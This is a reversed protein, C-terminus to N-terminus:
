YYNESDYDSEVAAIDADIRKKHLAYNKAITASLLVPDNFIQAWDEIAAIDEDM